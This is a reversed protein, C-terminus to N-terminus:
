TTAPLPDGEEAVLERLARRIAAPRDLTETTM